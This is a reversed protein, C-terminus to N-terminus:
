RPTTPWSEGAPPSSTPRTSGSSATASRAAPRLGGAPRRRDARLRHQCRRPGGGPRSGRLRPGDPRRVAARRVAPRVRRVAPEFEKGLGSVHLVQVGAARLADVREAFTTNLRQAGLSGGTVLLTPRTDSLGFHALAEDRRAARDLLAIEQRLPMGVVTAHPLATSAFTTAVYRTMRAGLRNALGPRSNQEHVVIPIGRRRAALYAPTSVYGGFGVVVEAGAEDIAAGAALVAGRMSAPLRALDTTPRRPFAVKPITRLTYGRAPVLRQELGTETGLATIRVDPDSRRLCDALALLPSVHGASGGGALLVSSPGASM